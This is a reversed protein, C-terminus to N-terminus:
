FALKRRELSNCCENSCPSSGGTFSFGSNLPRNLESAEASVRNQISRSLCMQTVLQDMVSYLNRASLDEGASKFLFKGRIAILGREAAEVSQFLWGIASEVSHDEDGGMKNPKVFPITANPDVGVARELGSFGVAGEDVEDKTAGTAVAGSSEASSSTSAASRRM